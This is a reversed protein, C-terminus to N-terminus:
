RGASFVERLTPPANKWVRTKVGRIVIEEIEFPAGPGTLAAHAEALSVAPWSSLPAPLPSSM